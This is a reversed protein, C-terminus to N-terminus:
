PWTTGGLHNGPPWSTARPPIPRLEMGSSGQDILSRIISSRGGARSALEAEGAEVFRHRLADLREISHVAMGRFGSRAAGVGRLFVLESQADPRSAWVTANAAPLQMRAIETWQRESLHARAFRLKADLSDGDGTASVLYPSLSFAAFVMWILLPLYSRLVKLM